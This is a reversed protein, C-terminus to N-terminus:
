CLKLCLFKYKRFDYVFEFIRCFLKNGIWRWFLFFWLNYNKSNIISTLRTSKLLTHLRIFPTHLRILPKHLSLSTKHLLYPLHQTYDLSHYSAHYMFHWHDTVLYLNWTSGHCAPERLSCTSFPWLRSGGGGVICNFNSM